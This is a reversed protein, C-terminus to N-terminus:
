APSSDTGVVNGIAAFLTGIVLFVVFGFDIDATNGFGNRLMLLIALLYAGAAVFGIIKQTM